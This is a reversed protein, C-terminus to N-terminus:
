TCKTNERASESSNDSNFALSYCERSIGSTNNSVNNRKGHVNEKNDDIASMHMVPIKSLVIADYKDQSTSHRNFIGEDVHHYVGVEDIANMKSDVNFRRTSLMNYSNSNRTWQSYDEQGRVSDANEPRTTERRTLFQRIFELKKNYLFVIAALISIVSLIAATIIVTIITSSYSKEEFVASGPDKTSNHFCGTKRDCYQDSTCNCKSQCGFGYYGYVCPGGTCRDGFTGVECALVDHDVFFNFEKNTQCLT